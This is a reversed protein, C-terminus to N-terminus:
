GVKSLATRIAQIQGRHEAEHQRLHHLVGDPTVNGSAVTRVRSFDFDDVVVVDEFVHARTTALRMVHETVSMAPVPSLGGSEERVDFPFLEVMWAPYDQGLIEAYVWDAEIAAIHYLLAGISNDGDPPISSVETDTVGAIASLTRDRCDELMWLARGLAGPYGDPVEVTLDFNTM